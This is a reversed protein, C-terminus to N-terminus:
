MTTVKPRLSKPRLSQRWRPRSSHRKAASGGIPHSEADDCIALGDVPVEDARIQLEGCLHTVSFAGVDNSELLTSGRLEEADTIECREYRQRDLPCQLQGPRRSQSGRYPADRAEAREEHESESM